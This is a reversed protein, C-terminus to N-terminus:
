QHGSADAENIDEELVKLLVMVDNIDSDTLNLGTESQVCGVRSLAIANKLVESTKENSWSDVVSQAGSPKNLM